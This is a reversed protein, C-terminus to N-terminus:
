CEDPARNVGANKDWKTLPMVFGSKWDPGHSEHVGLILTASLQILAIDIDFRLV